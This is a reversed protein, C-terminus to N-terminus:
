PERPPSAADHRPQGFLTQTAQRVAITTATRLAMAAVSGLLGAAFSSEAVEEKLQPQSSESTRRRTSKAPMLLYGAVVGAAVATMPLKRVYYKWDTLQKLESRADDVDYPLHSRISEMRHRIAQSQKRTASTGM